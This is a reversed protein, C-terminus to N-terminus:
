AVVKDNEMEATDKGFRAKNNCWRRKLPGEKKDRTKERAFAARLLIAWRSFGVLTDACRGVSPIPVLLLLGCHCAVSHEHPSGASVRLLCERFVRLRYLQSNARTFEEDSLVGEAHLKAIRELEQAISM